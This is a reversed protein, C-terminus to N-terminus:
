RMSARRVREFAQFVEVPLEVGGDAALLDELQGGAAVQALM